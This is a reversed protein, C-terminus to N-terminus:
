NPENDIKQDNWTRSLPQTCAGTIALIGACNRGVGYVGPERAFACCISHDSEEM